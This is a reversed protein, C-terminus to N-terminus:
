YWFNTNLNGTTLIKLNTLVQYTTPDVYYLAAFVLNNQIFYILAPLCYAFTEKTLRFNLPSGSYKLITASIGFKAIEALLITSAPSYSYLGESKSYTILLSQCSLVVTLLLIYYINKGVAVLYSDNM